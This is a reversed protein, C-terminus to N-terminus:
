PCPGASCTLAGDALTVKVTWAGRTATCSFPAGAPCDYSAGNSLINLNLNTNINLLRLAPTAGVAPGWYMNDHRAYYMQEAAQIVRLNNEADKRHARDISTAYNPIAFTAVIGVIMVVVMLEILTFGGRCAHFSM